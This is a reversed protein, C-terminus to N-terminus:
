CVEVQVAGVSEHTWNATGWVRVLDGEPLDEGFHLEIGQHPTDPCGDALQRRIEYSTCTLGRGIKTEKHQKKGVRVFRSSEKARSEPSDNFSSSISSSSSSPPSNPLSTCLIFGM